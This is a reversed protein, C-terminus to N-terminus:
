HRDVIRYLVIAVVIVTVFALFIGGADLQIILQPANM